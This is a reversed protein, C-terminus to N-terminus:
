RKRQFFPIVADTTIPKLLLLCLGSSFVFVGSAIPVVFGANTPPGFVTMLLFLAGGITWIVGWIRALLTLVRAHGATM